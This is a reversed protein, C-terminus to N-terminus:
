NWNVKGIHPASNYDWKDGALGCLKVDEVLLDRLMVDTKVANKVYELYPTFYSGTYVYDIIAVTYYNEDDKLDYFSKAGDKIGYYNYNGQETYYKYLGKGQMEIVYMANDFPVIKDLADEKIEKNASIDVTSRIGGTNSCSYDAEFANLMVNGVYDYLDSRSRVTKASTALVPLSDILQTRYERITNEVTSDYAYDSNSIKRYGSSTYEITGNETSYTM